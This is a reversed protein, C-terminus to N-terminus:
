LPWAYTKQSVKNSTATAHHVAHCELNTYSESTKAMKIVGISFELLLVNVEECYFCCFTSTLDHSIINSYRECFFSLYVFVVYKQLFAIRFLPASSSARLWLLPSSCDMQARKIQAASFCSVKYTVNASSICLFFNACDRSM